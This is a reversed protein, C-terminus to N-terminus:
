HPWVTMHPTWCRTIALRNNTDRLDSLETDYIKGSVEASSGVQVCTSSYVKYWIWISGLAPM